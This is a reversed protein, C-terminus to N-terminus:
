KNEAGDGSGGKGMIDAGDGAGAMYQWKFSNLLLLVISM